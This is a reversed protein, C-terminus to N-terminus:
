GESVKLEKNYRKKVYEAKVRSIAANQQHPNDKTKEIIVKAREVWEKEILDSDDAKLAADDAQLAAVPDSATIPGAAHQQAPLAAQQAIPPPLSPSTQPLEVATSAKEAQMSGALQNVSTLQGESPVSLPLQEKDQEPNTQDNHM